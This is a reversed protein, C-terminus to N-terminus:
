AAAAFQADYDGLGSTVDDLGEFMVPVFVGVGKVYTLDGDITIDALPLWYQATMADDYPSQGRMLCAMEAVKSGRKLPFSRVGPVMTAAATETVTADNMTKAFTEVTLDLVSVSLTVAEETRFKKRAVTSGLTMQKEKTEPLGLIVGDETYNKNGNLGLM